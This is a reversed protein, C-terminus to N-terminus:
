LCCDLVLGTIFLVIGIVPLLSGVLNNKKSVPNTLFFSIVCLAFGGILFFAQKFFYNYPSVAHSMYATVNSASFIMILGMVFLLSTIIFLPKDMYKIIKKM